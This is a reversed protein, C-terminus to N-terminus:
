SASSKYSYLQSLFTANKPNSYASPFKGCVILLLMGYIILVAKVAKIDDEEFILGEEKRLDKIFDSNTDAVIGEFLCYIAVIGVLVIVIM